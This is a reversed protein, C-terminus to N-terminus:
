DDMDQNDGSTDGDKWYLFKRIEKLSSLLYNRYKEDNKGKFEETMLELEWCLSRLQSPYEKPSHGKALQRLYASASMKSKKAKRLIDAKEKETLRIQIVKTRERM